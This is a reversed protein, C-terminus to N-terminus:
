YYRSCNGEFFDIILKPIEKPKEVDLRHTANEIKFIQSKGTKFYANNKVIKDAGETGMIDSDGFCIGIPFDIAPNGLRDPASLDHVGLMPFKETLM